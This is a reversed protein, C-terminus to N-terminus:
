VNKLHTDIIFYQIYKFCIENNNNDNNNNDDVDDHYVSFSRTIKM